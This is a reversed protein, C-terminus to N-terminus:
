QVQKEAKRQKKKPPPQPEPPPPPPEPPGLGLLGELIEAAEDEGIEEKPGEAPEDKVEGLEADLVAGAASLSSCHGMPGVGGPMM